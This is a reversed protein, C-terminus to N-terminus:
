PGPPVILVDRDLRSLAHQSVSGLLGAEIRSKGSSGIVLLDASSEAVFEGIAQIPHGSRLAPVAHHGPAGLSAAFSELSHMADLASQKRYHERRTDDIGAYALQRDYPAEHVHLLLLQADPLLMSAFRAAARAADSFDTAAVVRRYSTAPPQRVVLTPRTATQVVRQATSGLLHDLLHREGRAGVVVLDIGEDEVFRPLARHLLGQLLVPRVEIGHRSALAAAADALHACVGDVLAKDSVPLGAADTGAALVGASEFAHALWLRAGHGRALLAAREAAQAAPESFDTAALIRRISTSM